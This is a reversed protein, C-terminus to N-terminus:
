TTGDIKAALPENQQLPDVPDAPKTSPISANLRDIRQRDFGTRSHYALADSFDAQTRVQPFIRIRNQESLNKWLNVLQAIATGPPLSCLLGEMFLNEAAISAIQDKPADMLHIPVNKFRGPRLHAHTKLLEWSRYQGVVTGRGNRARIVILPHTSVYTLVAESDLQSLDGFLYLSGITALHNWPAPPPDLKDLEPFPAQSPQKKTNM